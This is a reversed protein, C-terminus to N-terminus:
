DERQHAAAERLLTATNGSPRPSGNLLLVKMKRFSFKNDPSCAALAEIGSAATATAAAMVGMKKLAERRTMKKEEKM